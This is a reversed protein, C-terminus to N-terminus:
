YIDLVNKNFLESILIEGALYLSGAVVVRDGFERARCVGSTVDAESLLPISVDGAVMSILADVDASERGSHIPVFVFSSAVNSIEALISRSDKDAFNGFVVAFSEDPFSSKLSEVLVRAGDANHAGDVVTGDYLVQFRGPWQVNAFGPLVSDFDIGYLSCVYQLACYALMANDVQVSGLLSLRFENEAFKIRQCPLGDELIQEVQVDGYMGCSFQIDASKLRSVDRFVVGVEDAVKGSFVPRGEKIIGAKEFAIKELTDGLFEEHDMAIGTLVSCVPDVVNTADFRGGLGTEWVVYDVNENRFCLAALVTTAEFFTPSAGDLKMAEIGVSLQEVAQIFQSESIAKGDIRFRERICFLHPSTYFGVRCGASSLCSSIMAGTSGKGNTGALHVFQLDADPSGVESMLRKVQDLGLKIGSFQLDLLYQEADGFSSFSLL